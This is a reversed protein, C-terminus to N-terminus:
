LGLVRRRERGLESLLADCEALREDRDEETWPAAPVWAELAEHHAEAARWRSELTAHPAYAPADPPTTNTTM